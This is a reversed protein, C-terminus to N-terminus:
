PPAGFPDTVGGASHAELRLASWVSRKRCTTRAAEWVAVGYHAAEAFRFATIATPTRTRDLSHRKVVLMRPDAGVAGRLPEAAGPGPTSTTSAAPKCSSRESWALSASGPARSVNSFM